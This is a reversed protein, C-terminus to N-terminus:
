FRPRPRYVRGLIDGMVRTTARHRESLQETDFSSEVIAGYQRLRVMFELQASNAASALFDRLKGGGFQTGEEVGILAVLSGPRGARQPLWNETWNALEVPIIAEERTAVVIVDAVASTSIAESLVEERGLDGIRWCRVHPGKEALNASVRGWLDLAWERTMADQYLIVTELAPETPANLKEREQREIWEPNTM